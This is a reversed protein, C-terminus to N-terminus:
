PRAPVTRGRARHASVKAVNGCTDMSCWRRAPGRSRSLLITGCGPLECRVLRARRHAFVDIADAAIRGLAARVPDDALWRATLTRADLSPIALTTWRAADDIAAIDRAEPSADAVLASGVRAIAERLARAAHLDALRPHEAAATLGAEHLWRGLEAPDPLGEHPNSTRHAITGAFDLALSGRHFRFTEKM